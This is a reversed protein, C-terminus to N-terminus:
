AIRLFGYMSQQNGCAERTRREKRKGQEEKREKKERNKKSGLIGGSGVQRSSWTRMLTSGMHM